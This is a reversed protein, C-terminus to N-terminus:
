PTGDELKMTVDEDDVFQLLIKWSLDSSSFRQLKVLLGDGNIIIRIPCVKVKSLVYWYIISFIRIYVFVLAFLIMLEYKTLSKFDGHMRKEYYYKIDM